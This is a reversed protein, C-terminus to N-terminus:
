PEARPDRDPLQELIGADGFEAPQQSPQTIGTGTLQGQAVEGYGVAPVRRLYPLVSAVMAILSMAAALTAASAVAGISSIMLGGALSGLPITGWAVFKAASLVRGQLHDPTFGYRYLGVLVNFPPGTLWTLGVIVGLGITNALLPIVAMLGAWLWLSGILVTRNSLRKLAWPALLSGLVAGAGAFAFMGGILASSAGLQRARVILVLSLPTFVINTVGVLVVMTCLPRQRILWSLGERIDARIRLATPERDAELVPRVGLVCAFSSLYGVSSFLFPLSRAAGFLVGGLPQGLLQAAYDRAQNQALAASYQSGQVIHPLAAYESLQFFVLLAGETFAVLIVQFVTLWGGLQAAVLTALAFARGADAVLMTRKRRWRDVFAGAPLYFLVYPLAQAFGVLGAKAPSGSIALVLLPYALTNVEAGTTSIVEGVWLRAFDKNRWLAPSSDKVQPRGHPTAPLDAAPIAM